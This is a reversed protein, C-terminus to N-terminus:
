PLRIEVRLLARLGLAGPQHVVFPAGEGRGFTFTPRSFAVLGAAEVGVAVRPVPVVGVGAGFMGAGWFAHGTRAGGVDLGRAVLDGLVVGASLPFEVIRVRPVFAGRAEVSWLQV